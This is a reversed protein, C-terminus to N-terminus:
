VQNTEFHIVVVDPRPIGYPFIDLRLRMEKMDVLKKIVSAAAAHKVQITGALFDPKPQGKVWWRQLKVGRQKTLKVMEAVESAPLPNSDLVPKRTLKTSGRTKKKTTRKTKRVAM